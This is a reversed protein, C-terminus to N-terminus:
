NKQSNESNMQQGGRRDNKEPKDKHQRKYSCEGLRHIINALATNVNAFGLKTHEIAPSADMGRDYTHDKM